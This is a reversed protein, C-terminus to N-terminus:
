KKEEKPSNKVGKRRGTTFSHSEGESEPQPQPEPEPPPREIPVIEERPTINTYGIQDELPVTEETVVPLIPTQRVPEPVTNQPILPAPSPLAQAPQAPIATQGAPPLHLKELEEPTPGPLPGPIAGPTPPPIATPPPIGRPPLLASSALTVVKDIVKDIGMEKLKPILNGIGSEDKVGFAADFAAKYIPSSQRLMLLDNLQSLLDKKGSEAQIRALEKNMFDMQVQNIQQTSTLQSTFMQQRLTEMAAQTEGREARAAEDTQRNTNLATTFLTQQINSSNQQALMFQQMFNQQQAAQTQALAALLNLASNEGSKDGRAKATELAQQASFQQKDLQNMMMTYQMMDKMSFDDKKSEGAKARMVDEVNAKGKVLDMMLQAVAIKRMENIFQDLADPQQYYHGYQPQYGYPMPPYPSTPQAPIQGYPNPINLGEEVTIQGPFQQLLEDLHVSLWSNFPIGEQSARMELKAKLDSNIRAHLSSKTPPM